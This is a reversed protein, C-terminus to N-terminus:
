SIPHRHTDRERYLQIVTVVVVIIAVAYVLITVQFSEVTLVNQTALIVLSIGLVISAMVLGLLIKYSARDISNGLRDLDDHAVKLTFSGRSIRQLAKNVNNPLDRIESFAELLDLGAKRINSQDLFRNKLSSFIVPKVEEMLNFEPYLKQGAEQVMSMVKIMLMTVMPVRLHYKQLAEVIGEFARPDQEITGYEQSEVLALYLDDKFADMSQDRIRMGLSTFVDVLGDVDRDVIAVLMKLLLVRKEPRLVGILGFDLLVLDGKPTVILNGPHPDGHFIGDEFIQKMYVKFGRIAIAKPDVGMKKIQEVKDIRVGKVYEMMLLRTGSHQWYIKPLRVGEFGKLNRALLDANKGDRVFDLESLIQRSFSNVMGPFNFIQLESSTKEARDAIAKLIRLDTEITEKIGPRQIKIVVVTGDKLKGHHVQSLSAAAFPRQNLYIFTEEINGCYEEVTPKVKEWPLPAVEDTLIKLEEILDPSLLERRTSMIQGFKIFTPGLEQIALRLRKNVNHKTAETKQKFVRLRLTSPLLDAVATEFGYKMLIAAIQEYRRLVSVM